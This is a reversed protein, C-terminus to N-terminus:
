RPFERQIDRRVQLTSLCGDVAKRYPQWVPGAWREVLEDYSSPPVRAAVAELMGGLRYDYKGDADRVHQGIRDFLTDASSADFAFRTQHMLANLLDADARVSRLLQRVIPQRAEPSLPELLDVRPRAHLIAAAWAPDPHRATADAWADIMLGGFESAGAAAVCARADIEWATSWHTPPVAAVFQRVWWQRDGSRVAPKETVDDREWSKDFAAPLTVVIKGAAFAVAADARATMRQVFGSRPLRSLLSVVATRVQKSRDDLASELFPEDADGLGVSMAEVFATREDAGDERWTSQVLAVAGAPETARLRRLASVRQDKTGTSWITEADEKEGVGVRWRPNLSMLWAGRHDVAAAVPDRIAVHRVACDLLAPILGHPVRQAAGNALTLWEDLLQRKAPTDTMALIGSLLDAARRSCAPRVDAVAAAPLPEAAVPTRGCSEYRSLVAVADLLKSEADTTPLSSLAEAVPGAVPPVPGRATGILATKVLEDFM